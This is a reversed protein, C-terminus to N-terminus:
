GLEKTLAAPEQRFPELPDISYLTGDCIAFVDVIAHAQMWEGVLTALDTRRFVRNAGARIIM